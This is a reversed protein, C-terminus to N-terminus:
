IKRRVIPQEGGASLWAQLEVMSGPKISGDKEQLLVFFDADKMKNFAQELHHLKKHKVDAPAPPEFFNSIVIVEDDDRLNYEGKIIQEVFAYNEDMEEESVGNIATSLFATLTM